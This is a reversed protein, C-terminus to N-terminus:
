SIQCTMQETRFNILAKNQIKFEDHINDLSWIEMFILIFVFRFFPLLIALLKSLSFFYMSVSWGGLPQRKLIATM